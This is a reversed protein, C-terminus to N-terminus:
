AVNQTALTLLDTTKFFYDNEPSLFSDKHYLISTLMKGCKILPLFVLM